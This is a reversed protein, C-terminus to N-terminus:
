APYSRRKAKNTQRATTKILTITSAHVFSLVELGLGLNNLEAVAIFATRKL